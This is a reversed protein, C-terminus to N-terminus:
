LALVGYRGWGGFMIVLFVVLGIISAITMDKSIKLAILYVVYGILGAFLILLLLSIM